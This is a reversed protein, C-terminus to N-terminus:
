RGAALEDRVAVYAPEAAFDEDLLNAAGQGQFRGPVWAYADTFGRVTLSTCRRVNLCADLLRRDRASEPLRRGIRGARAAPQQWQETVRELERHHDLSFPTAKDDYM